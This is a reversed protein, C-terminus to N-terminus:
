DGGGAEAQREAKWRKIVIGTIVEAKDDNAPGGAFGRKSPLERIWVIRQRGICAHLRGLNRGSIRLETPELGAFRVVLVPGGGPHDATETDVSDFNSWAYGKFQGDALLVHLTPEPKNGPRSFAAGYTSGPQPLEDFDDGPPADAGPREEAEPAPKRARGAEIVLTSQPRVRERALNDGM